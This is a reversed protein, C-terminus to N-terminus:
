IHQDGSIVESDRVNKRWTRSTIGIKGMSGVILGILIECLDGNQFM